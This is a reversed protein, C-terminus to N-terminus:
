TGSLPHRIFTEVGTANGLDVAAVMEMVNAIFSGAEIEGRGYATLLEGLARDLGHHHTETLVPM